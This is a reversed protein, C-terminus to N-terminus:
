FGFTHRNDKKFPPKNAGLISPDTITKNRSLCSQKEKCNYYDRIKLKKDTQIKKIESGNLMEKITQSKGKNKDERNHIYINHIYTGCKDCIIQISNRM